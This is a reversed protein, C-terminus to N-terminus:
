TGDFDDVIDVDPGFVVDVGIYEMINRISKGYQQM